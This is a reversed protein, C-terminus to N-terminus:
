RLSLRRTIPFSMPPANGCTVPSLFRDRSELPLRGPRQLVRLVGVSQRRSGEALEVHFEIHTRIADRVDDAMAEERRLQATLREGFGADKRAREAARRAVQPEFVRRAELIGKADLGQAGLYNAAARVVTEIQPEAVYLGGRPGSRITVLGQHELIRAAERASARSLGAERMLEPESCVRTGPPLGEEIIRRRLEAAALEAVKQRVVMEDGLLDRAESLRATQPTRRMTSAGWSEDASEDATSSGDYLILEEQWSRQLPARRVGARRFPLSRMKSRQEM